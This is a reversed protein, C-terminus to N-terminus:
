PLRKLQRAPQLLFSAAGRSSYIIHTTHQPTSPQHTITNRNIVSSQKGPRDSAAPLQSPTGVRCLPARRRQCAAREMTPNNKKEQVPEKLNWKNNAAPATQVIDPTSIQRVSGNGNVVECRVRQCRADERVRREM